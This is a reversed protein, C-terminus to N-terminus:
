FDFNIMRRMVFIGCSMWLGSAALVMNGMTTTFLLGVYQPSTLFVLMCVIPPLSGIIGASAKAESSMSKIKRRMKARDRLVVSLNGLTESLNGGTRTQISIVISFFRAEELLVRDAMRQVADEVALGMSLDEILVRFESRVPDQTESAVIRLCDALPIGARVGRVIIDVADPFASTFATQRRNILMNVYASPLWLGLVLGLAASAWTGLSLGVALVLMAALGIALGTLRYRRTTWNLGAQRLRGLLDARPRGDEQSSNRKELDHLTEEISRRTTRGHEGRRAGGSQVPRDILGM